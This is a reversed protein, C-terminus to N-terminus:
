RAEPSRAGREQAAGEARQPNGRDERRSVAAGQEAPLGRGPSPPPLSPLPAERQTRRRERHVRGPSTPSATRLPHSGRFVDKKAERCHAEPWTTAWPPFGREADLPHPLRPPLQPQCLPAPPPCGAETSPFVNTEPILEGPHSLHGARKGQPTELGIQSLLSPSVPASHKSSGSRARGTETGAPSAAKWGQWGKHLESNSLRSAGSLTAIAKKWVKCHSKRM